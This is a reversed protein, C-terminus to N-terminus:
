ANADAPTAPRTRQRIAEWDIKEGKITTVRMFGDDIPLLTVNPHQEINNLDNYDPEIWFWWEGDGEYYTLEYGGRGNWTIGAAKRAASHGYCDGRYGEDRDINWYKLHPRFDGKEAIAAIAQTLDELNM